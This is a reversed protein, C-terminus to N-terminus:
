VKCNKDLINKHQSMKKSANPDLNAFVTELLNM